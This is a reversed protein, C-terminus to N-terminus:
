IYNKVGWIIIRSYDKLSTLVNTTKSLSSEIFIHEELFDNLRLKSSLRDYFVSNFQQVQYSKVEDFELDIKALSNRLEDQTSARLAFNLKTYFSVIQGKDNICTQSFNERYKYYEIAPTGVAVSDTIASSWFSLTFRSLSALTFTNMNSIVWRDKPYKTLFNRVVDIDQRPHPKIIVFVNDLKFLEEFASEMLVQFNENSLYVKHTGRLTLLVKCKSQSDKIEKVEPTTSYCIIQEKWWDTYGLAGINFIKSKNLRESFYNIDFISTTLLHDIIDEDYYNVMKKANGERIKYDYLAYAHPYLVLKAKCCIRKICAIISDQAVTGQEKLIMKISSSEKLLFQFLNKREIITSVDKLISFYIEDREVQDQIKRSIFLTYIEVSAKSERIYKLIPLAVHLEGLSANVIFLIKQNSEM